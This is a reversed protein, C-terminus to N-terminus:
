INGTEEHLCSISKSKRNVQNKQNLKNYDMKRIFFLVVTRKKSLIANEAYHGKKM